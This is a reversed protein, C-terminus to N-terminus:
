GNEALLCGKSIHGHWYPTAMMSQLYLTGNSPNSQALHTLTYDVEQFPLKEAGLDRHDSAFDQVSLVFVSRDKYQLSANGM